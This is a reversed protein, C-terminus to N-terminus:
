PSPDMGRLLRVARVLADSRKLAPRLGYLLGHVLTSRLGPKFVFATGHRRVGTAWHMKYPEVSGLFDFEAFDRALAGAVTHHRLVLGPSLGASDPHYGVKLNYLTDGSALNWEYAVPEGAQALIPIRLRERLWPDEVMGRFFAESDPTTDLGTGNQHQWSHRSIRFATELAEEAPPRVVDCGERRARNLKRRLNRAFSRSVTEMADRPGGALTMFPSTFGPEVGVALGAARLAELLALTDPADLPLPSLAALRWSDEEALAHAMAQLTERAVSPEVLVGSRNAHVDAWLRLTPTWRRWHRERVRHLPAVGVLRGGSRATTLHIEPSSPGFAHWWNLIWAPALFLHPSGARRYLDEWEPRLDLVEDLHRLIQIDPM